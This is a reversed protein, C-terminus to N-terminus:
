NVGFKIQKGDLKEKNIWVCGPFSIEKKKKFGFM